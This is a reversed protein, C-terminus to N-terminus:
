PVIITRKGIGTGNQEQLPTSNEQLAQACFLELRPVQSNPFVCSRPVCQLRAKSLSVQTVHGVLRKCADVYPMHGGLAPVYFPPGQPKASDAGKAPPALGPPMTKGARAAPRAAVVSPGACGVAFTSAGSLM